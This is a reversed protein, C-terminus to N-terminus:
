YKNINIEFCGEQKTELTFNFFSDNKSMLNIQKIAYQVLVNIDNYNAKFTPSWCGTPNYLDDTDNDLIEDFQHNVFEYIGPHVGCVLSSAHNTISLNILKCTINRSNLVYMLDNDTSCDFIYDYGNFFTELLENNAKDDHIAKTVINFYDDKLTEIKVHPSISSLIAYLEMSKDTIGNSFTYESRCVNEPEKTDYDVIHIEKLGCQVLTKSVMSGIAGLGIILIKGNVLSDSLIGRGFFYKYSCNRTVGWDIASNVITTEWRGTKKGEQIVPKGEIPFEGIKILIVQWHVEESNIYYGVFVPIIKNKHKKINSKEFLHLFDRFDNSFINNLELWNTFIFKDFKAPAEKSFYFVGSKLEKKDSHHIGNWSYEIIDKNDTEITQLLYNRIIKGNYIGTGSYSVMVSGFQDSKYKYDAELFLYAAYEDDVPKLNSILHEYHTDEEENIYYKIAWNKLSNFDIIIKEKLDPSHQTHICVMGDEMVHNYKILDRNTFKISESEHNKLPYYPYITVKFPLPSKLEDMLLIIEGEISYENHQEFKKSLEVFAINRVCDNIGDINKLEM